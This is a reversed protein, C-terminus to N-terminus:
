LEEDADEEQRQEDTDQPVTFTINIRNMLDVLMGESLGKIINRQRDTLETQREVADLMLLTSMKILKMLEGVHEVVKETRWLLGAKEEYDQKSRLGAWFEKTLQKPLERHDMKKIYTEVDFIPKVLHPAVDMFDYIDGGMRRGVPKVGAKFLKQTVMGYDMHFLKSLQTMNLGDFIMAKTEDDVRASGFKAAM